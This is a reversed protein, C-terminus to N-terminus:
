RTATTLAVSGALETSEEVELPSGEVTVTMGTDIVLALAAQLEFSHPLGRSANWVLEADGDLALAIEVFDIAVEDADDGQPLEQALARAKATQDQRSTVSLELEIRALVDGDVHELGVLTALFKGELAVGESEDLWASFDTDAGSTMGQPLEGVPALQLDGGPALVSRLAGAPVSWTAGIALPAGTGPLLAAFDTDEVLGAALAADPGPQAEDAFSAVPRLEDAARRFVVTRGVLDSASEFAVRQVDERLPDSQREEYTSRAELTRRERERVKGGSVGAFTDVIDLRLTEDIEYLGELQETREGGVVITQSVRALSVRREFTKGLDTGAAPEFALKARAPAADAPAREQALRTSAGVLLGAALGALVIPTMRIPFALALPNM